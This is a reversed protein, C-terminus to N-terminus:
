TDGEKYPKPLPMWADVDDIDYGEFYCGNEQDRCFVDTSVNGNISILVEEGDEPLKCDLITHANDVRADLYEFFYEQEEETMSRTKIPIWESM